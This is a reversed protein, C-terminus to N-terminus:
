LFPIANSSKAQSMVSNYFKGSNGRARERRKGGGGDGGGGGGAEGGGGGGM